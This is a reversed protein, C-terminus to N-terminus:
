LFQMEEALVKGMLCRRTEDNGDVDSKLWFCFQVVGTEDKVLGKKWQRLYLTNEPLVKVATVEEYFYEYPSTAHLDHSMVFGSNDHREETFTM